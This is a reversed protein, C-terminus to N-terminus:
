RDSSTEDEEVVTLQTSPHARITMPESVYVVLRPVVLETLDGSGYLGRLTLSQLTTLRALLTMKELRCSFHVDLHRLNRLLSLSEPKTRDIRSNDVRLHVVSTPLLLPEYPTRLLRIRTLGTLPRLDVVQPHKVLVELKLRQLSTLDRLRDVSRVRVQLRRLRTLQALSGEMIDNPCRFDVLDSNLIVWSILQQQMATHPEYGFQIVPGGTYRDISEYGGSPLKRHKMTGSYFRLERLTTVTCLDIWRNERINGFIHLSRLQPYRKFRYGDREIFIEVRRTLKSGYDYWKKCVLKIATPSVFSMVYLQLDSHLDHWDPHRPQPDMESAVRLAM